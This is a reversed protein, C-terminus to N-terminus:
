IWGSLVIGVRKEINIESLIYQKGLQLKFALYGQLLKAKYM